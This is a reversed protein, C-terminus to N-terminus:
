VATDDEAAIALQKLRAQHDEADALALGPITVDAGRSGATYVVLTALGTARAIPGRSTDVHQIRVYPVVTRVRTIVGRELYIADERIEYCWIRYRLVPLPLLVLVPLVVAAAVVLPNVGVVQVVGAALVLGLVLGILITRVIWIARIRPDLSRQEVTLDAPDIADTPQEEVEGVAIGGTGAESEDTPRGPAGVSRGDSPEVSAEADHSTDPESSTGSDTAEPGPGEVPEDADPSDVM